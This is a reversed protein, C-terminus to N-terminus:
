QNLYKILNDYIVPTEHKFPPPGPQSMNIDSDPYQYDTFNCCGILVLKGNVIKEIAMIPIPINKPYIVAKVKPNGDKNFTDDDGTILIEVGADETLPNKNRDLLSCTGWTIVTKVGKTVPHGQKLVHALVGWPKNTKNTKDWVQDDNLMMVSGLNKLIYNITGTGRLKSSDWSGGIVLNGGKMFWDSIAKVEADIYRLSPDPIIVTSFNELMDPKFLNLTYYVKFGLKKMHKEFTKMKDSAANGHAADVLINKAKENALAENYFAVKRSPIRIEPNTGTVWAMANYALQPHSYMFSDYSDHLKNQGGSGTGDDFPSSDGIAVVRGNGFESAVVYPAKKFRSYILGVAKANEAEVMEFTSGAWAGVGRIGYMVPHNKNAKGSLPAEYLFDGAFKFGFKTCFANLALVADWGDGDRDSNGHDGILFAGGGNRVFEVIAAQESDKYPNNPEALIIGDYNTLLEGTILGNDSVEGLTDIIFGNAKLMDTMESYAGSPIWDANGATQGHKDDYLVRKNDAHVAISSLILFLFVAILKKM